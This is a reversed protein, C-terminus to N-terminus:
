CGPEGYRGCCAQRRSVRRWLNDGIHRVRQVPALDGQGLNSFWRLTRRLRM